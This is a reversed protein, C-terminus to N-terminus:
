ELRLQPSLFFNSTENAGDMSRPGDPRPETLYCQFWLRGECFRQLSVASGARFRGSGRSLLEPRVLRRAARGTESPPATRALRPGPRGHVLHSASQPALLLGPPSLGPRIAAPRPSLVSTLFSASCLSQLATFNAPTLVLRKSTIPQLHDISSFFTFKIMSSM